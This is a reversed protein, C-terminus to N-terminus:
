FPLEDAKDQEHFRIKESLGTMGNKSAWKCLLDYYQGEDDIIDLIHNLIDDSEKLVRYALNYRLKYGDILSELTASCKGLETLIEDPFAFVHIDVGASPMKKKTAM